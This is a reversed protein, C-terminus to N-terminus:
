AGAAMGTPLPSREQSGPRQQAEAGLFEPATAHDPASIGEAALVMRITRGIIRADLLLSGNDVYAVDLAFRENWDLCNRGSSQALGTLGPRVEHRRRQDASYRSLYAVPLPRPGIISM